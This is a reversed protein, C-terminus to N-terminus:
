PKVASKLDKLADQIALEAAATLMQTSRIEELAQTIPPFAICQAYV